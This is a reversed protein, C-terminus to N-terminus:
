LNIGAFVSNYILRSTVNHELMSLFPYWGLRLVSILRGAIGSARYFRKVFQRTGEYLEDPTMNRPQFVAHYLDYKSWDITLIRHERSLRSFLPTGPLPTLINAGTSDVNWENLKELTTGFVDPMDGDFGFALSSMVAIGYEHLKKVLDGYKNVDNTKKHLSDINSQSISEFGIACAICGADSSLKIIEEDDVVNANFFCAFKKDLEKMERFLKKSYSPNLSLSSDMFIFYNHPLKEIAKIVREVPKLRLRSGMPSHSISCFECRNICGRTAEIGGIPSLSRNIGTACPIDEATVPNSQSYFPMLRGKEADELLRPWSDEAEGIVVADAHQKAEEPMASAHYGGLVVKVGHERLRDAMEYAKYATATFYSIGALEYDSFDIKRLRDDNLNNIATVSHKRPTLEALQELTCSPWLLWVKEIFKEYPTADPNGFAQLLLIKM